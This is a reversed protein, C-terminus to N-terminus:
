ILSHSVFCDQEDNDLCKKKKRPGPEMGSSAETWNKELELIPKSCLWKKRCWRAILSTDNMELDPSTYNRISGISGAQAFGM